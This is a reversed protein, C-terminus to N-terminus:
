RFNMMLYEMMEEGVENSYNCRRKSQCYGGLISVNLSSFYRFYDVTIPPLSESSKQSEAYEVTARM